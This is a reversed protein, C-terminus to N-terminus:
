SLNGVSQADNEKPQVSLGLHAFINALTHLTALAFFLPMIVYFPRKAIGLTLAQEYQVATSFLWVWSVWALTAVMALVILDTLVHLARRFSPAAMDAMFSLSIMQRQAITAAIALFAMWILIYVALEEAFYIPASLTYRLIVNVLLLGCFAVILLQCFFIEVRSVLRSFAGLACGLRHLSSM